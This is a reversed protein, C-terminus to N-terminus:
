RPAIRRAVEALAPWGPSEQICRAFLWLLLRHQDLGLLAAMRHAFVRPDTLLRQDCSLTATPHVCGHM